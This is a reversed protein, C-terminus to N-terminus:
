FGSELYQNMNIEIGSLAGVCGLGNIVNSYLIVAEETLGDGNEAIYRIDEFTKTYMYLSESFNDVTLIYNDLLHEYEEPDGYFDVTNTLKFTHSQGSFRGDDFVKPITFESDTLTNYFGTFNLNSFLIDRTKLSIYWDYHYSPTNDIPSYDIMKRCIQISYYNTEEAPDDITISSNCIFSTNNESDAKLNCSNMRAVPKEPVVTEGYVEDFDGYSAKVVIHDGIKPIYDSMYEVSERLGTSYYEYSNIDYRSIVQYFPYVQNGNVIAEVRAGSLGSRTQPFHAQYIFETKFVRASLKKGPSAVSFLVLKEGDYEGKYELEKECSCLLVSIASIIIYIFKRM